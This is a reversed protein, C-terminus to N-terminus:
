LKGNEHLIDHQMETAQALFEAFEAAHFNVMVQGQGHENCFVNTGLGGPGCHFIITEGNDKTLSISNEVREIM